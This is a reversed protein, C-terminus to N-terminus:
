RRDLPCRRKFLIRLYPFVVLVFTDFLPLLRLSVSRLREGPKFFLYPFFSFILFLTDPATSTGGGGTRRGGDVFMCVRSVDSLFVSDGVSM